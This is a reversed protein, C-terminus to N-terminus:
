RWRRSVSNRSGICVSMYHTMASIYNVLCVCLSVFPCAHDLDDAQTVPSGQYMISHDFM